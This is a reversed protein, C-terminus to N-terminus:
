HPQPPRSPRRSKTTRLVLRAPPPEGVLDLTAGARRLATRFRSANRAGWVGLYLKGTEDNKFVAAGGFVSSLGDADMLGGGGFVAVVLDNPAVSVLANHGVTFQGPDRFVYVPFRESV